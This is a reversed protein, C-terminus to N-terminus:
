TLKWNPNRFMERISAKRTGMHLGIRSDGMGKLDQNVPFSRENGERVENEKFQSLTQPLLKFIPTTLDECGPNYKWVTKLVTKYTKRVVTTKQQTNQQSNQLRNKQNNLIQQFSSSFTHLSGKNPSGKNPSEKNITGTTHATNPSGKNITVTCGINPSGTNPQRPQQCMMFPDKHPNYTGTNQNMKFASATMTVSALSLALLSALQSSSAM